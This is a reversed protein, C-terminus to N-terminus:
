RNDSMLRAVLPLLELYLWVITLVLGFSVYWELYKPYGGEVVQRINELDFFLYLTALFVMVISVILSLGFNDVFVTGISPVFLSFLWIFLQAFIVSMAFIFLFSRFKNTVKVIGSLYLTAVVLLVAITSLLAVTVVGYTAVAYVLTILGVMMGQLLCYISGAIKSARPSVVAIIAAITGVVISLLLAGPLAEPNNVLLFVGLFAGVVVLFLYFLTKFAVGKYTAVAYDRTYESNLAKKFVPNHSRVNSFRM